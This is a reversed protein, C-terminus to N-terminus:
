TETLPKYIFPQEKRLMAADKPFRAFPPSPHIFELVASTALGDARRDALHFGHRGDDNSENGRM